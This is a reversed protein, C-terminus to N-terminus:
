VNYILHFMKSLPYALTASCNKLVVGNIADPGKAKNIDISNPIPKIRHISFEIESKDDNRFDISIDYTSPGSFQKRFFENFLTAKALPESATSGCYSIVEPIRTSKTTSKVHSWFKKTLINRNEM